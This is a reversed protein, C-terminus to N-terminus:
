DDRSRRSQTEEQKRANELDDTRKVIRARQSALLNAARHWTIRADAEAREIVGSDDVPPIFKEIEGMARLLARCGGCQHRDCKCENYCLQTMEHQRILWTQDGAIWAMRGAQIMAPILDPLDERPERM